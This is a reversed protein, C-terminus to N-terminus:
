EADSCTSVEGKEAEAQRDASVATKREPLGQRFCWGCRRSWGHVFSSLSSVSYRRKVVQDMNCRETTPVRHLVGNRLNVVYNSKLRRAM